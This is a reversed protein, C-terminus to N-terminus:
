HLSFRFAHPPLECSYTRAHESYESAPPRPTAGVRVDVTNTLKRECVIANLERSGINEQWNILAADFRIMAHNKREDDTPQRRKWNSFGNNPSTDIWKWKMMELDEYLGIWAMMNVNTEIAMAELRLSKARTNISFYDTGVIQQCFDRGTNWNWSTEGTRDM